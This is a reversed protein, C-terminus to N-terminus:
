PWIRASFAWVPANTLSLHMSLRAYKAALPFPRLASQFVFINDMKGEWPEVTSSNDFAGFRLVVGQEDPQVRYFGSALWIGLLIVVVLAIGKGSGFGGPM